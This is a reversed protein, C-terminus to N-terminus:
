SQTVTHSSMITYMYINVLQCQQISVIDDISARGYIWVNSLVIDCITRQLKDINNILNSSYKNYMNNM